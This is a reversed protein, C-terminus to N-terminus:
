PSLSILSSFTLGKQVSVNDNNSHPDIGGLASDAATQGFLHLLFRPLAASSTSPKSSPFTINEASASSGSGNARANRVRNHFVLVVFLPHIRTIALM